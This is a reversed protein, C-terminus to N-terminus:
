QQGPEITTEPERKMLSREIEAIADLKQQLEDRERTLRANEAALGRLENRAAADTLERQQETTQRSAALDHELKSRAEYELKFAAALAMEADDLSANQRSLQEILDAAEGPKSNVGASSGLALAYELRARGTGTDRAAVYLADLLLSQSESDAHALQYLLDFYGGLQRDAHDAFEGDDREADSPGPPRQTSCAGSGLAAFVTVCVYLRVRVPRFMDKPM